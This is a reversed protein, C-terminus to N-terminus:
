EFMFNKMYLVANKATPGIAIRKTAHAPNYGSIDIKMTLWENLHDQLDAYAVESGNKDYLKILEGASLAPANTNLWVNLDTVQTFCIDLRLTDYSAIASSSVYDQNLEIRNYWNGTTGASLRYCGKQGDVEDETYEFVFTSENNVPVSFREALFQTSVAADIVKAYDEASYVTVTLEYPYTQGGTKEAIIDYKYVGTEQPVFKGNSVEVNDGSPATLTYRLTYQQNPNLREPQPLVCTDGVRYVWGNLGFTSIRPEYLDTSELTTEGYGNECIVRMPMEGVGFEGVLEGCSLSVTGNEAEYLSQELLQGDVSIGVIEADCAFTLRDETCDVGVSAPLTPNDGDDRVTIEVTAEALNGAADMAGYRVDYTGYNVSGDAYYMGGDDVTMVSLAEGFCDQAAIGTFPDALAEGYSLALSAGAETLTPMSYVWVPIELTKGAYECKLTYKGQTGFRIGSVDLTEEYENGSADAVVIASSFDYSEASSRICFKEPASITYEGTPRETKDGGYRNTPDSKILFVCCLTIAAAALVCAAAILIIKLRKTM